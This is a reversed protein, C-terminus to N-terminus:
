LQLVIVYALAGFAAGALLSGIWFGTSAGSSPAQAVGPAAGAPGAFSVVGETNQLMMTKQPGAGPPPGGMQQGGMQGPPAGPYPAAGPPTGMPVGPPSMPPSMPAPGPGGQAFPSM